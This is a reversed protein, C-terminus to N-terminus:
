SKKKLFLQGEFAESIVGTRSFSIDLVISDAEPYFQGEGDMSDYYYRPTGGPSPLAPIEKDIYGNIVLECQDLVGTMSVPPYWQGSIGNTFFLSLSDGSIDIDNHLNGKDDICSYVGYLRVYLENNTATTCDFAQPDDTCACIM